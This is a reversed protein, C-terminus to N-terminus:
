ESKEVRVADYASAQTSRILEVEHIVSIVLVNPLPDDSNVSTTHVIKQDRKKQLQEAM